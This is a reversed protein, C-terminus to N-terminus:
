VLSLRLLVQLGWLLCACAVSGREVRAHQRRTLACVSVYVQRTRVGWGGGFLVEADGRGFVNSAGHGRPRLHTPSLPQERHRIGELQSTQTTSLPPPLPLPHADSVLRKPLLLPPAQSSPGLSSDPFPLAPIAVKLLETPPQSVNGM